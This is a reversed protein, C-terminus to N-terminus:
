GAIPVLTLYLTDGSEIDYDLLTQEKRNVEPALIIVEGDDGKKGLLYTAPNGGGDFKPLKLAEIITEVHVRINENPNTVDIEYEQEQYSLVIYFNEEM